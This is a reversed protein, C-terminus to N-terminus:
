EGTREETILNEIAGIGDIVSRVTQGAHLFKPPNFTAGVGSPTGTFLLDGPSLTMVKSLEAIQDGVKFILHKTNSSQRLEGDVYCRIDLCHPDGLEDATVIAPGWPAHTDFSKGLMWQSGRLQWDRISFDNGVSYGFVHEQVTEAPIHRGGRGIVVVLEVEYDLKDSVLPVEVDGNPDNLATPQKCFWEQHEPPKVGLAAGEAVHDAYNLGIALVKQPAAVPRLLRLDSLALGPGSVDAAALRPRLDPWATIVEVMDRPADPVLDTLPHARDAKLLGCKAEGTGDDYRMLDM